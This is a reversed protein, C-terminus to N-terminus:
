PCVDQWLVPDQALRQVLSIAVLDASSPQFNMRFISSSDMAFFTGMLLPQILNPFVSIIWFLHFLHLTALLEKEPHSM